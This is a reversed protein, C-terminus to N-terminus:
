DADEEEMYETLRDIEEQTNHATGPGVEIPIVHQEGTEPDVWLAPVMIKETPPM